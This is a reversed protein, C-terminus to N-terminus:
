PAARIVKRFADRCLCFPLFEQSSKEETEMAFASQIYIRNFGQNVVFDIEHQRMERVGGKRSEVNVVGVDVAYGLRALENYIVNEMLHTREQQRWNLRANRIGMDESYLKYPTELYKKGKVDYLKAKSFLYAQMLHRINEYFIAGIATQLSNQLKKVAIWAFVKKSRHGDDWM